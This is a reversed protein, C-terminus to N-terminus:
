PSRGRAQADEYIQEAAEYSRAMHEFRRAMALLEDRDSATRTRKALERCEDANRCCDSGLGLM